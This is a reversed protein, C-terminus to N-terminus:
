EKKYNIKYRIILDEFDNYGWRTLYEGFEEWTNAGDNSLEGNRDKARFSISSLKLGESQLYVDIHKLTYIVNDTIKFPKHIKSQPDYLDISLLSVKIVLPEDFRMIIVDNQIGDDELSLLIDKIYTRIDDISSENISSEFLQYTKLYRM